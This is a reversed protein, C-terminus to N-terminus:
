PTPKASHRFPRHVYTPVDVLGTDQSHVEVAGAKVDIETRRNRAQGLRTDNGALPQTPGLGHTHIKAAPVGAEVLVRAVADARRKSLAMNWAMSGVSSTHGTVDLTYDGTFKTLEEGIKRIVAKGEPSLVDEDNAFHVQADDLIIKVPPPTTLVPAPAPTEAPPPPPPPPEPAPPPPVVPAPAPAPPALPAPRAGWRAGIGLVIQSEARPESSRIQAMRFELSALGHKGFGYQTGVGALLNLKTTANGDLSLPSALRSPGLGVRLYPKWPGQLALPANLLSLDLHTERAEWLGTSSKITASLVSAEWGWRPSLWQGIGAGFGPANATCASNQQTLAAGQVQVWTLPAAKQAMLGPAALTVVFGTLARIPTRHFRMATERLDIM